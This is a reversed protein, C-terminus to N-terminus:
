RMTPTKNQDTIVQAKTFSKQKGNISAPISDSMGDGGGSLFRAQGGSAYGIIGQLNNAYNPIMGGDYYNTAGGGLFGNTMNGQALGKVDDM